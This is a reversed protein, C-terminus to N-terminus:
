QAACLSSDLRCGRPLSAVLSDVPHYVFRDGHYVVLDRVCGFHQGSASCVLSADARGALGAPLLPTYPVPMPARGAALGRPAARLGFM